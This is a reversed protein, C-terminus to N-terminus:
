IATYIFRVDEVFKEMTSMIEDYNGYYDWRHYQYIGIWGTGLRNLSDRIAIIMHHRSLGTENIGKGM